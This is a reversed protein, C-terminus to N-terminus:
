FENKVLTLHKKQTMDTTMCYYFHAAELADIWIVDNKYDYHAYLKKAEIADILTDEKVEYSKAM